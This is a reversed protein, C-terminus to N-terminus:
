LIIWTRNKKEYHLPCYHHETEETRSQSCVSCHEKERGRELNVALCHIDRSKELDFDRLLSIINQRQRQECYIQLIRRKWRYFCQHEIEGGRDFSGLCCQNVSYKLTRDLDKYSAQINQRKETETLILSPIKSTRDKRCDLVVLCWAFTREGQERLIM